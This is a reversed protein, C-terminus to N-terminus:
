LGSDMWKERDLEGGLSELIQERLKDSSTESNITVTGYGYPYRRVKDAVIAPTLDIAHHPKRIEFRLLAVDVSVFFEIVILPVGAPVSRVIQKRYEKRSYTCDLIASLGRDLVPEIARAAVDYALRRDKLCRDSGPIIATLIADVHLHIGPLTTALWVGTTSKGSCPPGSLVVVTPRTVM